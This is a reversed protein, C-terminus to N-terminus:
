WIHSDQLMLAYSLCLLARNACFFELMMNRDLTQDAAFLPPWLVRRVPEM